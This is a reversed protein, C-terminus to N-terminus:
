PEKSVLSRWVAYFAKNQRVPTRNNDTPDPSKTQCLLISKRGKKRRGTWTIDGASRSPSDCVLWYCGRLLYANYWDDCLSTAPARMANILNVEYRVGKMGAAPRPLNNIETNNRINTNYFIQRSERCNWRFTPLWFPEILNPLLSSIREYERDKNRVFEAITDNPLWDNHLCTHTIRKSM